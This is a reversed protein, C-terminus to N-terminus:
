ISAGIADVWKNGDWWIPKGITIDFFQFGLVPNVPRDTSRGFNIDDVPEWLQKVSDFKLIQNHLPKVNSVDILDSTYQVLDTFELGNEHVNVRLGKRAQNIYDLPTDDLDLFTQKLVNDLEEPVWSTGNYYIFSNPVLTDLYVDELDNFKKVQSVWYRYGNINSALIDGDNSPNGLKNEKNQLEKSNKYTFPSIAKDSIIGNDVELQSAFAIDTVDGMPGRLQGINKWESGNWSYGDGEQGPIPALLDTDKAIWIEGKQVPRKKLIELIYDTGEIYYGEIPNIWILNKNSDLSILQNTEGLKLFNDYNLNSVKFVDNNSGDPNDKLAIYIGTDKIQNSNQSDTIVILDFKKIPYKASQRYTILESLKEFIHITNEKTDFITDVFIRMDAASIAGVINDDFLALISEKTNM